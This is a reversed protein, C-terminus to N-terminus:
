DKRISGKDPMRPQPNYPGLNDACYSVDAQLNLTRDLKMSLLIAYAISRVKTDHPRKAM